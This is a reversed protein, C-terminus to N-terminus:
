KSWMENDTVPMYYGILCLDVYAPGTALNQGTIQFELNDRFPYVINQLKAFKVSGCSVDPATYVLGASGPTTFLNLPVPANQTEKNIGKQVAFINLPPFYNAGDQEAYKAHVKRLLYWFGYDLQFFMYAVPVNLTVRRYIFFPQNTRSLDITEFDVM